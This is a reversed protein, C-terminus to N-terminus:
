GGYYVKEVVPANPVPVTSGDTKLLVCRIEDHILSDLYVFIGGEPAPADWIVGFVDNILLEGHANFIQYAEDNHNRLMFRIIFSGNGWLPEPGELLTHGSADRVYYLGTESNYFAGIGM